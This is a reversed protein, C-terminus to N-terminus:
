EALWGTLWDIVKYRNEELHDDLDQEEAPQGHRVDHVVRIAEVQLIVDVQCLDCYICRACKSM